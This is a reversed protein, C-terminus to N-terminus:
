GEVVVGGAVEKKGTAGRLAYKWTSGQKTKLEEKDLIAVKPMYFIHGSQRAQRETELHAM